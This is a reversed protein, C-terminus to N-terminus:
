AVWRNGRRIELISTHSVGYTAAVVRSSRHDNRIEAVQDATLRAGPADAGSPIGRNRRRDTANDLRTGWSLNEVTNNLPNDDSHLGIQGQGRPGVYTLLVAHHVRLRKKRILVYLHGGKEGVLPKLVKGSPGQIDGTRTCKVGAWGPVDTWEIGTTASM